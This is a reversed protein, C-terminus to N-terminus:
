IEIWDSCGFEPCEVRAASLEKLLGLLPTEDEEDVDTRQKQCVEGAKCPEEGQLIGNFTEKFTVIPTVM